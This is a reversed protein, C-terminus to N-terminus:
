TIRKELEILKRMIEAMTNQHQRGGELRAGIFSVAASTSIMNESMIPEDPQSSCSRSMPSDRLSDRKSESENKPQMEDCDIIENDSMAAVSSGKFPTTFSMYVLSYAVLVASIM